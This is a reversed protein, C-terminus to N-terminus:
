KDGVDETTTPLLSEPWRRLGELATLTAKAQRVARALSADDVDLKPDLLSERARTIRGDIEPVLFHVWAPSTVLNAAHDRQSQQSATM